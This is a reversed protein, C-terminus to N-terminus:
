ANQAKLIRLTQQFVPLRVGAHAIAISDAMHENKKSLLMQGNKKYRAWDLYPYKEVAWNIIEQKAAHRSGVSALKTEAPSVETADVGSLAQMSAYIGTVIGFGMVSRYDQGGSPVEVFVATPKHLPLRTLLAKTIDQSRSLYDSSSRVQKEKSKKTEILFIDDAILKEADLDYSLLAGGFSALSGDLAAIRIINSM